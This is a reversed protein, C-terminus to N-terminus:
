AVVNSSRKAPFTKDVFPISYTQALGGSFGSISRHIELNDTLDLLDFRYGDTAPDSVNHPEPALKTRPTPSFEFAHYPHPQCISGGSQGLNM